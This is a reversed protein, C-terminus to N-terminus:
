GVGVDHGGAAPSVGLSRRLAETPEVPHAGARNTVVVNVSPVLIDAIAAQRM